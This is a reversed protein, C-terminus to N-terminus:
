AAEDAPVMDIAIMEYNVVKGDEEVVGLGRPRFCFSGGAGVMKDYVVKSEPMFTVDGILHDGEIRLNEVKHTIKDVQVPRDWDSSPIGFQGYYLRNLNPEIHTSSYIRGNKNPTNLELIVEKM